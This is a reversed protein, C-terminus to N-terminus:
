SLRPEDGIIERLAARGERHAAPDDDGHAILLLAMAVAWARARTWLYQDARSGYAARFSTRGTADFALWAIALDYAPDGATVDGFDILAGLRDGQVILNGPHLDGHIWVPAAEWGSASIGDAWAIEAVRRVEVPLAPSAGEFRAAVADARGSLPGGRFPNRPHDAPAPSHLVSVARGLAGAWRSREARGTMSSTTGDFWPVVSWVWPYGHGPAGAFLPEPVEVGAARLRPGLVPLVRQEHLVLPAALARRPMRVALDDGLRWLECDWGSGAHRLPASAAPGLHAAQSQLLSRVLEATIVVEAAPVASVARRYRATPERPTDERGCRVTPVRM